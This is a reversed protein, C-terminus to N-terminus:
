SIRQTRRSLFFGHSSQNTCTLGTRRSVCRIGHWRWVSGYGLKGFDTAANGNIFGVGAPGFKRVYWVKQGRSTAESFV